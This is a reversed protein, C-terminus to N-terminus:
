EGTLIAGVDGAKRRAFAIDTRGDGDADFCRVSIAEQGIPYTHEDARWAGAGDGHLVLVDGTDLSAIAADQHGDADFDGTCVGRPTERGRVHTATPAGFGGLGDNLFTVVNGLRSDAVVKENAILVDPVTDHDLDDIAVSSPRLGGSAHDIRAYGGGPQSLLVSFTNASRNATVIDLITDGNLHGLAVDRPEAGTAYSGAMVLVSGINLFVTVTSSGSQSVVVDPRGDGDVDGSALAPAGLGNSPLRVPALSPFQRQGFNMFVSIDNSGENAVIIDEITNGDLDALTMDAPKTGTQLTLRQRQARNPSRFLVAGRNDQRSIGVLDVQGDGDLDAAAAARVERGISGEAPLATDSFTGDGLGYLARCMPDGIPNCGVVDQHLDGDLDVVYATSAAGMPLMAEQTFTGTSSGTYLVMSSGHRGAYTAIVDMWGNEDFDAAGFAALGREAPMITGLRGPGAGDNYLITWGRKVGVALDLWGNGDYDGALLPGTFRQSSSVSVPVFEGLGDNVLLLVAGDRNSKPILAVDPAGDGTFDAVAAPARRRSAGLTRVERFRGAGDGLLLVIRSQKDVLILDTLGDADVDVAALSAISGKVEPTCTKDCGDRRKLNGDDCLEAGELVGNGCTGTGAYTIPEFAGSALGRLIQLPFGKRVKTTVVADLIGDDTMDALLVTEPLDPITTLSTTSLTDLSEQEVLMLSRSDQDVTLLQAQLSEADSPDVLVMRSTTGSLPNFADSSVVPVPLPFQAPATALYVGVSNSASYAVSLDALGDGNLDRLSVAEAGGPVAFADLFTFSGTGSGLYLTLVADASLTALDPSGDLNLDAAAIGIAAPPTRTGAFPSPLGDALPALGTPSGFLFTTFPEGLGAVAVDTHGDLDFDALAAAYPSEMPVRVSSFLPLSNTGTGLLITIDNSRSGVAVLDLHSDANLSGSALSTPLMGAPRTGALVLTGTEQRHYIRVTGTDRSVSAVDVLGDGNFDGCAAGTPQSGVDEVGGFEFVGNGDNSLIVAANENQAAAIIDVVGDNNCDGVTFGKANAGVPYARTGDFSLVDAHAVPAACVLAAFLWAAHLHHARGRHGGRDIREVTSTFNAM